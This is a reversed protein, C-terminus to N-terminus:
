PGLYNTESIAAFNSYKLFFHDFKEVAIPMLSWNSQVLKKKCVEDKTQSSLMLSLLCLYRSIRPEEGSNKFADCGLTDVPAPIEKRM